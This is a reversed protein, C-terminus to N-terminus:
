EIVINTTLETAAVSIANTVSNKVVIAADYVDKFPKINPGFEIDLNNCIERTPYELAKKLIKGGATNPLEKIAKLLSISGGPVIGGQMALFSSNRGDLAKGRLHSLETDSNAGLKLIATKTKLRAARIESEDTKEEMLKKIHESVDLTGLVISDKKSTIIKKCTGFYRQQFNKLTTGQAPDITTAGTIKAFDEFLWDKWLTPAKIVLTKFQIHGKGYDIGQMALYALTQNVVLEIDDCFIVMESKGQSILSKIIPDLQAMNVIKQKTILIDPNKLECERGKDSNTMYPYMFGCNLLRVGETIEYFTEPLGSNDLEIIGDSGIQQYIEQFMKGLEKNESAISAVLGVENVTITKAQDDISKTIITICAELSRKVEMPSDDCKQGEMLIAGYLLSATKRGDGSERDSKNAVEKMGNLGIMEYPDSLRISELIKKGDNTFEYFPYVDARIVANGGASGYSGKIADYGKEVGTVLKKVAQKGSLFNDKKQLAFMSEIFQERTQQPQNQELPKM